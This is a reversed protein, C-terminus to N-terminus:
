PPIMWLWLDELSLRNIVVLTVRPGTEQGEAGSCPLSLLMVLSLLSLLIAAARPVECGEKRHM